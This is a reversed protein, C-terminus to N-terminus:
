QLLPTNEAFYEHSDANSLAKTPDSIALAKANTQGYAWDDTGAVVNFHSLEHILTGGKSDTGSLPAGWFVSCLYIEYPQNPYVYAYYNKKCGCDFSLPRVDIADKIVAFHSDATAWGGVSFAGFWTTYRPTASPAGSLYLKADNAMVSAAGLAQVILNQQDLSCRSFSLGGSLDQAADGVTKPASARGEIWLDLDNSEITAAHKAGPHALEVRYRVTYHGTQLLDYSGSLDAARTVSKGPAITVFDTDGPVPRKYHPGTFEVPQGDRMVVFLDEELAGDPANWSLLRIPRRTTNTLTLTLTVREAAGVSTAAASLQVAVDGAAPDLVDEGEEATDVSPDDGEIVCAGLLLASTGWFALWRFHSTISM